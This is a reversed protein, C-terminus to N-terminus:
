GWSRATHRGCLQHEIFTYPSILSNLKMFVLHSINWVWWVTDPMSSSVSFSHLTVYLQHLTVQDLWKASSNPFAKDLPLHEGTKIRSFSDRAHACSHEYVHYNCFALLSRHTWGCHVNHYDCLILWLKVWWHPHSEPVYVLDFFFTVSPYVCYSVVWIIKLYICFLVM